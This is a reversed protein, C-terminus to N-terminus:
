KSTSSRFIGFLGRRRKSKDLQIRLSDIQFRLSDIINKLSPIQTDSCFIYSERYQRVQNRLNLTDKILSLIKLSDTYIKRRLQAIGISDTIYIYKTDAPTRIYVISPKNVIKTKFLTDFRVVFITDYSTKLITDHRNQLLSLENIKETKNINLKSLFLVAAFSAAISLWFILKKKTANKKQPNFIEEVKKAGSVRDIVLKDSLIDEQFSNLQSFANDLFPKDSLHNKLDIDTLITNLIAKEKESLDSDPFSTHYIGDQAKHFIRYLDYLINIAQKTDINKLTEFIM